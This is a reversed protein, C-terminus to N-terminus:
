NECEGMANACRESILRTEIKLHELELSHHRVPGCTCRVHPQATLDDCSRVHSSFFNFIKKKDRKTGSEGM